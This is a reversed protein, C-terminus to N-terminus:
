RPAISGALALSGATTTMRDHTDINDKILVPIGHLPGRPGKTIREQALKWAEAVADPNIEIVANLAPGSKDIKELRELYQNTSASLKQLQGIDAEELENRAKGSGEQMYKTCGSGLISAVGGVAALRLLDRRNM